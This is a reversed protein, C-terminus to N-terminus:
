ENERERECVCVCVVCCLCHPITQLLSSGQLLCRAVVVVRCLVDSEIFSCGCYVTLMMLLRSLDRRRTEHFLFSFPVTLTTIHKCIWFLIIRIRATPPINQLLTHNSGRNQCITSVAWVSHGVLLAWGFRPNFRQM